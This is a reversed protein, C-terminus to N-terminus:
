PTPIIAEDGPNILSLIANALSQKAGTSVLVQDPTYTLNNDRLLKECIAQRLEPFGAVPPYKTYGENMATVAADCIHQPTKFDPEGISLDIIDIGQAKLERSLKAMRITQPESVRDLRKALQM